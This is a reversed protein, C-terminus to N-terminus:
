WFGEKEDFVEPNMFSYEGIELALSRLHHYSLNKEIPFQKPSM